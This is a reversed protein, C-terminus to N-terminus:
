RTTVRESTSASYTTSPVTRDPVHRAPIRSFMEISCTLCSIASKKAYMFTSIVGCCRAGAARPQDVIGVPRLRAIGPDLVVPADFGVHARTLADSSVMDLADKSPYLERMVLLTQGDTEEFTVTTVSGNDGSEENTWVLRSHPTVEISKGFFEMTSADHSFV